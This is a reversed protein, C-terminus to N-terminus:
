LYGEDIVFSIISSSNKGYDSIGITEYFSPIKGSTDMLYLKLKNTM